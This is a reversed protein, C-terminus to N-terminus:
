VFEKIAQQRKQRQIPKPAPKTSRRRLFDEIAEQSIRYRPRRGNSVDIAALAGSKIWGIVKSPDVALLEAAQPPTLWPASAIV